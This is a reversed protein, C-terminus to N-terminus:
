ADTVTDYQEKKDKTKRDTEHDNNRKYVWLAAVVIVALAAAMFAYGAAILAYLIADDSGDNITDDSDVNNILQLSMCDTTVDYGSLCTCNYGGYFNFCVGHQHCNHVDCENVDDTCNYGQLGVPCNCSYGGVTNTCNLEPSCHLGAVLCEDIDLDCHGGTYGPDCTCNYSAVGDTCAGKICPNSLCEDIDTECNRGTYGDTCNCTYDLELNICTGGHQCIGPTRVCEDVDTACREGRLTNPCTCSFGGITNTCEGRNCFDPDLCENIDDSCYTGNYRGGCDCPTGAVNNLCQTGHECLGNDCACNAGITGSPCDCTWTGSVRSLVCRGENLCPAAVCPDDKECIYSLRKDVDRARWAANNFVAVATDDPMTEEIDSRFEALTGDPWSRESVTCRGGFCSLGTWSPGDDDRMSLALFRNEEYDNVSVLRADGHDFRCVHRSDRFTQRDNEHHSFYYAKDGYQLWEGNAFKTLIFVALFLTALLSHKSM